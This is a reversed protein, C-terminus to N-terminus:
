PQVNERVVDHEGFIPESPGQLVNREGVTM